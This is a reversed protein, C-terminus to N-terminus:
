LKHYIEMVGEIKSLREIILTKDIDQPGKLIMNVVVLDDSDSDFEISVINVNIEGLVQGIKGLQGPKNTILLKVRIYNRRQKIYKEVNSFILLTIFVLVTTLIAALYFGAGIALGICAVAWLGAATTLGKVTSGDRIITGAGLFGIGSIVQASLRVPDLTTEYKYKEFIYIGVLMVLTSGVCVLIHTRFGAPRRVSEREIGILGSLIIALFLRLVIQEIGIM